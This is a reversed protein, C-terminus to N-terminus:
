DTLCDELREMGGWREFLGECERNIDEVSRPKGNGSNPFILFVVGDDTGGTRPNADIDLLRALAMSGEGIKDNPGLDAVIAYAFLGKSRNLVVAFDGLCVKDKHKLPMVVFPIKNANVYREPDKLPKSKDELATTSIYFGPYPDQESQIVPQGDPKNNDTVLAWANGPQWGNRLHDLGIDQPHYANPAGDADIAMGSEFFFASEGKIKWAIRQGTKFYAEKPCPKAKGTITLFADKVTSVAGCEGNDQSCESALGTTMTLLITSLVVLLNCFTKAKEIILPVMKPLVQKELVL